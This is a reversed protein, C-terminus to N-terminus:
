IYRCFDWVNIGEGKDNTTIAAGPVEVGDSTELRVLVHQRPTGNSADTVVGKVISQAVLINAALLIFSLTLLLKKIM